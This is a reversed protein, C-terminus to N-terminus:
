FKCSVPVILDTGPANAVPYSETLLDAPGRRCVMQAILLPALSCSITM